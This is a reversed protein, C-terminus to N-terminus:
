SPFLPETRLAAADAATLYGNREMTAIVHAYRALAAPDGPDRGFFAPAQPLGGLYICQGMTLHGLDTGFYAQAAAAIGFAGRGFYDSNLYLELIYQKSFDHELILAGRLIRVQSGILATWSPQVQPIGLIGRALQQTITSGGHDLHDNSFNAFFVRVAAVPDFGAHRYFRKDEVSVVAETLCPPIDAFPVYEGGRAAFQGRLGAPYAAIHVGDATGVFLGGLARTAPPFFVAIFAACVLAGIALLM